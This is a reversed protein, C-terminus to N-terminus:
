STPCCGAPPPPTLIQHDDCECICDGSSWHSLFLTHPLVQSSLETIAGASATSTTATQNLGTSTVVYETSGGRVNPVVVTGNSAQLFAHSPGLDVMGLIDLPTRHGAVHTPVLM